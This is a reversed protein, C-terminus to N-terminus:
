GDSSIRDSFRCFPWSKAATELYFFLSKRNWTIPVTNVFDRLLGWPCLVSDVCDEFDFFDFDLGFDFTLYLWLVCKFVILGSLVPDDDDDTWWLWGYKFWSFGVLASTFKTLWPKVADRIGDLEFDKEDFM